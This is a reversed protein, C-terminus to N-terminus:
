VLNALMNPAEIESIIIHGFGLHQEVRRAVIARADRDGPRAAAHAVTNAAARARAKVPRGPFHIAGVCRMLEGAELVWATRDDDHGEVRM